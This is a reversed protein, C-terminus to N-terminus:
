STRPLRVTGIGNVPPTYVTDGPRMVVVDGGRSQVPRRRRHRAPDPRVRPHAMRHARLAFRATNVRMRSPEEGKAIVDFYVDGTFMEAPGKTSM